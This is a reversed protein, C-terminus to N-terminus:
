DCSGAERLSETVWANDACTDGGPVSEGAISVDAQEAVAVALPMAPGAGEVATRTPEAIAPEFAGKGGADRPRDITVGAVAAGNVALEPSDPYYLMRPEHATASRVPAHAALAARGHMADEEAARDVLGMAQSGYVGVLTASLIVTGATLTLWELAIAGDEARLFGRRSKKGRAALFESMPQM